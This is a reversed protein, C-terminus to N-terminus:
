NGRSKTRIVDRVAPMNDLSTCENLMRMAPSLDTSRQESKRNHHQSKSAHETQDCHVM